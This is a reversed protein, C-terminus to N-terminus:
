AMSNQQYRELAADFTEEAHDCMDAMLELGNCVAEVPGNMASVRIIVWRQVFDELPHPISFGCLTM